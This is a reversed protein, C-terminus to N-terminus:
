LEIGQTASIGSEYAHKVMKMETVTDAVEIVEADAGRGTLIMHMWKPKEDRIFVAIEEDLARERTKTEHM